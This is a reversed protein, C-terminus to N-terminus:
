GCVYCNPINCTFSYRDLLFTKVIRKFGLLSVNNINKIVESMIDNSNLDNLIMPLQYRCTGTIFTHVHMPPQWRPNRIPYYDVGRSNNPMFNQLHQPAKDYILNHYFVLLRFKYIDEVKLLNYLKFLPETHANYGASNIARIAKKQLMFIKNSNYGWSLICYNIHPLILSNYISLLINKPFTLQLKKIIGTTRIIKTSVEKIHSDWTLRSNIHLRLFNFKDTENIINNNIRLNLKNIIKNQKHFLMYKTKKVNLQLGNALLWEHVHQLEQNLTFEKYDSDIDELNCFLTTDDAYLLFNFVNSSNPIDNIYILFLLPGLISGQPVGNLVCKLESSHDNLQVFQKRNELYNKLLDHAVGEVGYHKLKDLLISHSLFDFAKSLDLYVNLPIRRADVESNLYDLLHLAAYETSHYKRFGYQYKYM